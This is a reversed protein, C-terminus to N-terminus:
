RKLVVKTTSSVEKSSLNIFYLGATYDDASFFLEEGQNIDGQFLIAIREGNINTLSLTADSINLFNFHVLISEKAPNPLVVLASWRHYRYRHILFRPHLGDAINRRIDHGFRPLLGSHHPVIFVLTQPGQRNQRSQIQMITM